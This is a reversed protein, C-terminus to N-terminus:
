SECECFEELMTILVTGNLEEVVDNGMCREDDFGDTRVASSLPARAEGNGACECSDCVDSIFGVMGFMVPLDLLEMVSQLVATEVHVEMGRIADFLLVTIQPLPEDPVVVVLNM